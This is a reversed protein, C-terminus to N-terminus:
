LEKRQPDTKKKNYNQNKLYKSQKFLHDILKFNSM